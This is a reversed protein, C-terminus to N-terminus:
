YTPKMVRESKDLAYDSFTSLVSNYEDKDSVRIGNNLQELQDKSLSSEMYEVDLQFFTRMVKEKKPPGDFLSLNGSKDVSFYASKKCEDSLDDIKQEMMVTGNRDLTAMWEPHESLMRIVQKADMSGLASWEEGCLYTRHLKVIFPGELSALKAIISRSAGDAKVPEMNVKGSLVHAELLDTYPMLTHVAAGAPNPLLLTFMALLSGLTLVSRRGRKLRKKLQKWLSFEKM